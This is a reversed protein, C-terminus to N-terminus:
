SAFCNWWTFIYASPVGYRSFIPGYRKRLICDPKHRHIFRHAQLSPTVNWKICPFVASNYNHSRFGILM